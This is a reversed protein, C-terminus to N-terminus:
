KEKMSKTLWKLVTLLILERIGTLNKLIVSANEPMKPSRQVPYNFSCLESVAM